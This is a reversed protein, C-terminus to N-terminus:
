NKLKSKIKSLDGNLIIPKMGLIEEKYSIEPIPNLLYIKKQLFFAVGIEILTNGGIYNKIDHKDHNLVLIADSWEIKKFHWMIAEVKRDWIWKENESAEKRRRYYEAVPIMNGNEDKVETPPLDVEYGITELEKKVSLMENFFAISGCITIKM